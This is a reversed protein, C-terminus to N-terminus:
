VEEFRWKQHHTSSTEDTWLSLWHDEWDCHRGDCGVLMNPSKASEIAFVPGEEALLKFRWEQFFDGPTFLGLYQEVVTGKSTQRGRTGALKRSFANFMIFNVDTMRILYWVQPSGLIPIKMDSRVSLSSGDQESDSINGQISLLRQQGYTKEADISSINVRSFDKTNPDFNTM